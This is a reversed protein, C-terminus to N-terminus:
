KSRELLQEIAKTHKRMTLLSHRIAAPDSIDGDLLNELYGQIITLPNRIQLTMEGTAAPNEPSCKEGSDRLAIRVLRRSHTIWLPIASIYFHHRERLQSEKPQLSITSLMPKGTHYADAAIMSIQRDELISMLKRGLIRGKPRLIAKAASNVYILRDTGDILMCADSLGELAREVFYEPIRATKETDEDASASEDAAELRCDFGSQNFYFPHKREHFLPRRGM